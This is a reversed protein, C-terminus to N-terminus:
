TGRLTLPTFGKADTAALAVELDCLVKVVASQGFDAAFHIASRGDEGRDDRVIQSMDDGHHHLLCATLTVTCRPM